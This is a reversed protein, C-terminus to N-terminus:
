WLGRSIIQKFFRIEAGTQKCLISKHSCCYSMTMMYQGPLSINSASASLWKGDLAFLESILSLRHILAIDIEAKELLQSVVLCIALHISVRVLFLM